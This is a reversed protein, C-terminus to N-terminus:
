NVKIFTNLAINNMRTEEDGALNLSSYELDGQIRIDWYDKTNVTPTTSTVSCRPKVSM